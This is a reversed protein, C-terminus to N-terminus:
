QHRSLPLLPVLFLCYYCGCCDCVALLCALESRSFLRPVGESHASSFFICFHLFAITRLQKRLVTWAGDVHNWLQTRLWEAKSERGSRGGRGDQHYFDSWVRELLPEADDPFMTLSVALAGFALMYLSSFVGASQIPDRPLVMAGQQRDIATGCDYATVTTDMFDTGIPLDRGSGVGFTGHLSPSSMLHTMLVHSSSGDDPRPTGLSVAVLGLLYGRLRRRDPRQATVGDCRYLLATVPDRGQSVPSVGHTEVGGSCQQVVPTALM